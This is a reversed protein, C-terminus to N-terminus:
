LEIQRFYSSIDYHMRMKQVLQQKFTCLADKFQM